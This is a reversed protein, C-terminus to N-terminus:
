LEVLEWGQSNDENYISENWRYSNSDDPRPIPAEWIWTDENLVWSDWPQQQYFVDNVDDYKFGIGAYNGRFPTGGESHSNGFTNYSTRKCTMGKIETYYEEWSEAGNPTDQSEDMGVLVEKVINNEDLFAYHAM